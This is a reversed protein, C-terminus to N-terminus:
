TGRQGGIVSKALALLRSSIRLKAKQAAELNVEFRIKNEELFFGIMGGDQVFRESEGVTLVSNGKVGALIAPLIKKEEAGIFLVQCGQIERPQKFHLVRFPRAVITKGNLAADLSGHFPDEGITCYTLPSSADKFTEEPWEVFQAFHFLFAAKVSYEEATSNAPLNGPFSLFLMLVLACVTVQCLGRRMEIRKRPTKM